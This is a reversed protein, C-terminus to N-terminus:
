VNSWVQPSVVLQFGCDFFAGEWGIPDSILRQGKLLKSVDWLNLCDKGEAYKSFMDEFKQPVFRGETDYTGSDSGHKAKHISTVYVRFFPDPFRTLLTPYSFNAHIILVALLSLLIGFGLKYFGGFTDTPWIIGNGDADFFDCHKQLVQSM